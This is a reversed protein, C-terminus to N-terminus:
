FLGCSHYRAGNDKMFQIHTTTWQSYSTFYMTFARMDQLRASVSRSIGNRSITLSISVGPKIPHGSHMYDFPSVGNIQTLWDGSVVGCQNLESNPFVNTIYCPSPDNPCLAFMGLLGLGDRNNSQSEQVTLVPIDQGSPSKVSTPISTNRPSNELRESQSGNSDASPRPIRLNGGTEAGGSKDASMAASISSTIVICVVFLQKFM